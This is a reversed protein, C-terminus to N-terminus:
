ALLLRRGERSPSGGFPGELCVGSRHQQHGTREIVIPLLATFDISKRIKESGKPKNKQNSAIPSCQFILSFFSEPNPQKTQRLDFPPHLASITPSVSRVIRGIDRWRIIDHTRTGLLQAVKLALPELLSNERM